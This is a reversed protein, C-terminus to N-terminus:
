RVARGLGRRLLLQVVVGLVLTMDDVEIEVDLRPLLRRRPDIRATRRAAWAAPHRRCRRALHRQVPVSKARSLSPTRRVRRRLRLTLDARQQLPPVPALRAARNHDHSRSKQRCPRRIERPAEALRLEAAHPRRRLLPRPRSKRLPISGDIVMDGPSKPCDATGATRLHKLDSAGSHRWVIRVWDFAPLAAGAWVLPRIRAVRVGSGSRGSPERRSRRSGLEM